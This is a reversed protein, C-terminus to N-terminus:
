VILRPNLPIILLGMNGNRYRMVFIWLTVLLVLRAMLVTDWALDRRLDVFVVLLSLLFFSWSFILAVIKWYAAKAISVKYSGWRLKSCLPSIPMMPRNKMLILSIWKYMLLVKNRKVPWIFCTSDKWCHFWCAM